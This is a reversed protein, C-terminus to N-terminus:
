FLLLTLSCLACPSHRPVLLRLLVHCAAILKPYACIAQSGSIESHAVWMDLLCTSYVSNMPIHLCVRPVSVDLYGSSSFSIDIKKTAALSFSDAWVLSKTGPTTSLDDSCLIKVSSNQFARGCFTITRYTLLSFQM